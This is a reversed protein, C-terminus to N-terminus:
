QSQPKTKYRTGPSDWHGYVDVPLTANEPYILYVTNRSCAWADILNKRPFIKRVHESTGPDNIIPDGTETFGVLVVLHGNPGPGKARLRDYDLSLGVPLSRAIWAELEAVDSLRSVYARIQSFSGAYAMNFPWNGTGQWVTDYIAEAVQPVPRDLSPRHLTKAWYGLIMSVTTPSCLASGNPYIMQTREPVPVTKGWAEQCPPLPAPTANSDALSIGLFRLTKKSSKGPKSITLRVQLDKAPRRLLLTDTSVDADADKQGAQSHRPGRTSNKSWVGLSYYKTTVQPYIAQAAVELYADEPLDANWSVVVENFTIDAHIVPSTLFIRGDGPVKAEVFSSLSDFGIFQRGRYDTQPEASGGHLSGGLIAFLLALYKPQKLIVEDYDSEAFHFM